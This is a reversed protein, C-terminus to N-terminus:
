VYLQSVLQLVSLLNIFSLVLSLRISMILLVIIQHSTPANIYNTILTILVLM